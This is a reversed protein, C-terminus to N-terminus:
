HSFFILQKKPCFLEMNKLFIEYGKKAINKAFETTIVSKIFQNSRGIESEISAYKYNNEFNKKFVSAKTELLHIVCDQITQFPDGLFPISDLSRM